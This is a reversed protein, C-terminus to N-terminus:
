GPDWALSAIVERAKLFLTSSANNALRLVLERAHDVVRGALHIFAFRIAKLRKTAWTGPKSMRTQELVLRKMATNLNYALVTIAWWAANGGIHGCPFRGGALDHKLVAHVEESKGCREWHWLVLENATRKWDNTVIGHLKYRQQEVVITPFPLEPEATQATPLTLQEKLAERVAIFRLDPNKKSHSLANPAFCVEAYEKGTPHRTIEGSTDVQHRLVPKWEEEKVEAVAQKFEPTVDMSVTFEIVGFRPDDGRAMYLLFEWQYAASDSRVRIRGVGHPVYGIADRLVRLIEHGALVNGDRFESHVLLDQEAWYVQLPQFAKYHKYCYTANKKFSESLTADIDLTAETQPSAANVRALLDANVQYLAKLATSAEPIWAKGKQRTAEDVRFGDLFRFVTSPSPVARKREKRWRREMQRRESRKLGLFESEIRQMIRRFGEDCELTRLDDVCDGGALQLLVLSMAVQPDSWGQGSSRVNLHAEMSASIGLVHSLELYAPLGGLATAGSPREEIEVKFALVGESM